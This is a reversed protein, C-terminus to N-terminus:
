KKEVYVYDILKYHVFLNNFYEGKFVDPRSHLCKASEYLIMQGPELYVDYNEGNHGQIVLPWDEAGNLEKDVCIISSIHHSEIRDRHYYLKCNKNYSRIGYIWYPQLEQKSWNKHLELLDLHLKDRMDPFNDLSMINSSNTNDISPIAEYKNDFIEEKKFCKVKEYIHLIYKWIDSPVEILDFGLETFAPLEEYNSFTKKM